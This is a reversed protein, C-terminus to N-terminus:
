PPLDVACRFGITSCRDLGPWYLIFKAAWDPLRPGGDAYWESGGAQYDAGGKVVCSRTRGDL